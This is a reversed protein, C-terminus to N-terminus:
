ILKLDELGMLAPTPSGLTLSGQSGRNRTERSCSLSTQPEISGLPYDALSCQHTVSGSGNAAMIPGRNKVWVYYLHQRSLLMTKMEWGRVGSSWRQGKDRGGPEAGWASSASNFLVLRWGKCRIEKNWVTTYNEELLCIKRRIPTKLNLYSCLVCVPLNSNQKNAKTLFLFGEGSNPPTYILKTGTSILASAEWFECSGALSVMGPCTGFCEM